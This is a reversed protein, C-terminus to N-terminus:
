GVLTFMKADAKGRLLRVWADLMARPQELMDTRRYAREVETGVIHALAM